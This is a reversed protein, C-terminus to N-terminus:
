MVDHRHTIATPFRPNYGLCGKLATLYGTLCGTFRARIFM